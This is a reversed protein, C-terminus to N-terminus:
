AAGRGSGTLEAWRAEAAETLGRHIAQLLEYAGRRPWGQPLREAPLDPDRRLFPRWADVLETRAVLADAQTVRGAEMVKRVPEFREIFAEYQRRLSDVDWTADIAGDWGPVAEARFLTVDEVGLSTVLEAVETLRTGPSIWLADYIPAYGLWRLSKRLYHRRERDSEALSFAVLSWRGDWSPDEAGFSLVRARAARIGHLTKPNVRYRTSRGDRVRELAGGLTARSIASRAGSPGIGFEALLRALVASRMPPTDEMWHEGLLTILLHRPRLEPMASLDWRGVEPARGGAGAEAGVAM